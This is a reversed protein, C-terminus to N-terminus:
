LLQMQLKSVKRTLSSKNIFQYQLIREFNGKKYEMDGFSKGNEIEAKWSNKEWYDWKWIIKIEFIRNKQLDKIPDWLYNISQKSGRETFCLNMCM